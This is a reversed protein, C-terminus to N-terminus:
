IRTWSGNIYRYMLTRGSVSVTVAYYNGKGDTVYLANNSTPNLTSDVPIGRSNFLIPVTQAITTQPSAATTISGFSFSIGNPLYQTGGEMTFTTCGGTATNKTTCVEIQYTGATLNVNLRAQTFDASARLRVLALQGAISRAAGSLKYVRLANMSTPFASTALVLLVAGLLTLEITSYGSKHQRTAEYTNM